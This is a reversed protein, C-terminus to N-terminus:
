YPFFYVFEMLVSKTLAEGGGGIQTTKVSSMDLSATVALKCFKNGMVPSMVLFMILIKQMAQVIDDVVFGGGTM